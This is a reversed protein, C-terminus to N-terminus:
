KRRLRYATVLRPITEGEDVIWVTRVDPNRADPTILAGEILYKTGHETTSIGAIEYDAAHKRMADALVPWAELTFGFSFFFAAKGQNSPHAENLLYETIKAEAVDAHELNPLKM